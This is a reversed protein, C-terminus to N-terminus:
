RSFSRSSSRRSRAPMRTQFSAGIQCRSWPAFRSQRGASRLRASTVTARVTLAPRLWGDTSVCETAFSSDNLGSAFGPM